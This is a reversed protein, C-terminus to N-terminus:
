LVADLKTQVALLIQEQAGTLGPSSTLSRNPAQWVAQSLQQADVAAGGVVYAKGPEMQISGSTPTIVSGGDKRSLYGGVVRVPQGSVNDLRVNAKAQDIVFNAEDVASLAGFFPSAVGVATTQYHQFWAYLRQVTTIGDPDNIDVEINPGDASFETVAAGDIGAAIYVTDETQVDLFTLGTQSLIGAVELPLKTPHDARLRITHAATFTIGFDLGTGALVGNFLESQTTVNYLQVRSGSILAPATVRVRTGGADTYPGTILNGGVVTYTTAFTAGDASTIHVPRDLNASQCLDALCAQLVQSPTVTGTVTVRQLVHDVAVPLALAQAETLTCRSDAVLASQALWQFGYHRVGQIFPFHYLGDLWAFGSVNASQITLTVEIDGTASPTLTPSFAHWQGATAPCTFTQNM